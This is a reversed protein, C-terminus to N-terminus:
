YAMQRYCVHLTSLLLHVVFLYCRFSYSIECTLFCDPQQLRSGWVSCYTLFLFSSVSCEDMTLQTALSNSPTSFFLQQVSPLAGSVAYLVLRFLNCILQGLVLTMLLNRRTGLRNGDWSLLSYDAGLPRFCGEHEDDDSSATLIVSIRQLCPKSGVQRLFAMFSAYSAMLSMVATWSWAM